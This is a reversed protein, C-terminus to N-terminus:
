VAARDKPMRTREAPTSGFAKLADFYQKFFKVDCDAPTDLKARM